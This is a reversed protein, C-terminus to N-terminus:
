LFNPLSVIKKKMDNDIVIDGFEYLNQLISISNAYKDLSINKFLNMLTFINETFNIGTTRNNKM